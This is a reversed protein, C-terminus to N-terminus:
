CVRYRGASSFSGSFHLCPLFSSRDYGHNIQWGLMEDAGLAADYYGQPTWAIWHDGDQAVFLALIETGDEIRHWHLTGDGQATVVLRGDGSVNVVWTTAPTSRRWREIPIPKSRDYLRISWDAGLVVHDGAPVLAM